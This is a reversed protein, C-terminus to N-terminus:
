MYFRVLYSVRAGIITKDEQDQYDSIFGSPNRDVVIFGEDGVPLMIGTEPILLEVADQFATRRMNGDVTPPFWAIAVLPLSDLAPPRTVEYTIYPPRLPNGEADVEPVSDQLYAPMGFSSWFDFLAAKLNTM